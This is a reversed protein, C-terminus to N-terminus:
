QEDGEEPSTWEFTGIMHFMDKELFEIVPELSDPRIQTNFYLASKLFHKTTDSIYFQMPSAAPGEFRFILGGPNRIPIEEMFHSRDNIKGAIKFADRVYKDYQNRDDVMYYTCYLQADFDPFVINFWCPHEMKEGFYTTDRSIEAYEPYEFRFPCDELDFVQYRKEPYDVKPYTRPKPTTQQPNDCSSVILGMLIVSYALSRIM